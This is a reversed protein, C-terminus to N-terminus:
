KQEKTPQMSANLLTKLSEYYQNAKRELPLINIIRDATELVQQKLAYSFQEEHRRFFREFAAFAESSPTHDAQLTDITVGVLHAAESVVNEKSGNNTRGLWDKRVAMKLEGSAILSMHQEAALSYFLNGLQEFIERKFTEM